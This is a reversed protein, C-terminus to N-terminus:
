RENNIDNIVRQVGEAPPIRLRTNQPVIYTGKGLGNATAIIWWLSADEYFINALKDLREVSTTQIYIDGNSLPITPVIVTSLKRTEETDRQVRATSYRGMIINNKYECIV